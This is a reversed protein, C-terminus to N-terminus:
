ASPEARELVAQGVDLKALLVLGTAFFVAVSLIAVRYSGTFQLALGFLLPGLWSTSRQAIQYVGFYEAEEGQPIMLSFLARSLGETGGLAIAMAAGLIVFQLGSHLLAFSYLITGLWVVLSFLIITKAGVRQAIRGFFLAAGFAVFQVMLITGALFSIDLHLEEQGFQAALVVVTEVGDSYLLYAFLFLRTQPHHRLAHAFQELRHRVGERLALVVTPPAASRRNVLWIM